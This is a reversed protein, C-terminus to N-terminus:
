GRLLRFFPVDLRPAPVNARRKLLLPFMGFLDTGGYSEPGVHAM